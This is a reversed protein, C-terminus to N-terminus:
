IFNFQVKITPPLVAICEFRVKITKHNPQDYYDAGEVPCFSASSSSVRWQVQIQFMDRLQQNRTVDSVPDEDAHFYTTIEHSDDSVDTDAAAAIATGRYHSSVM